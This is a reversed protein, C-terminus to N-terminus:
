RTCLHLLDKWLVLGCYSCAGENCKSRIRPVSLVDAGSSRLSPQLSSHYLLTSSKNGDIKTKAKKWIKKIIYIYKTAQNNRCLRQLM